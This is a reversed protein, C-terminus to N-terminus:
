RGRLLPPQGRMADSMFGPPQANQQDRSRRDSTVAADAATLRARETLGETIANRVALSRTPALRRVPPFAQGPAPEALTGSSPPNEAIASLIAPRLLDAITCQRQQATRRVLSVVEDGVRVSLVTRGDRKDRCRPEGSRRLLLDLKQEVAALRQDDDIQM